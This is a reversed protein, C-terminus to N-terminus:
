FSLVEDEILKLLYIKESESFGKNLTDIIKQFRLNKLFVSDPTIFALGSKKNNRTALDNCISSQIIKYLEYNGNPNKIIEELEEWNRYVIRFQKLKKIFIKKLKDKVLESNEILNDRSTKIEGLFLDFIIKNDIKSFVSSNQKIKVISQKEEVSVDGSDKNMKLQLLFSEDEYNQNSHKINNIFLNLKDELNFELYNEMKNILKSLIQKADFSELELINSQIVNMKLLNILNKRESFNFGYSLSKVFIKFDPHTKIVDDKFFYLHFQSRQDINFQFLYQQLEINSRFGLDLATKRNNFENRKLNLLQLKLQSEYFEKTSKKLRNKLEEIGISCSFDLDEINASAVKLKSVFPIYNNKGDLHWNNGWSLELTEKDLFISIDLSVGLKNVLKYSNNNLKYLYDNLNKSDMRFSDLLTKVEISSKVSLDDPIADLNPNRLLIEFLGDFGENSIFGIFELLNNRKTVIANNSAKLM